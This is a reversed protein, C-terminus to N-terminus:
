RGIELAKKIMEKTTNFGTINAEYTRIAEMMHVMEELPEINPYEVFGLEDAGPHHPQYERKPPRPDEVVGVTAVRYSHTWSGPGGRWSPEEPVASLVIDKRRYVDGEESRTSRANALNSSILKLRRAQADMGSLSIDLAGFIGM